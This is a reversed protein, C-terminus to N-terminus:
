KKYRDILKRLSALDGDLFDMAETLSTGNLEYKGSEENYYTNLNTWMIATLAYMEDEFRLAQDETLGLLIGLERYRTSYDPWEYDDGFLSSWDFDDSSDTESSWGTSADTSGWSDDGGAFLASLLDLDM